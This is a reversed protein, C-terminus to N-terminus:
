YVLTWCAHRHMDTFWPGVHTDTVHRAVDVQGYDLASRSRASDRHAECPPTSSVVYPMTSCLEVCSPAGSDSSAHSRTAAALPRPLSTAVWSMTSRHLNVTDFGTRFAGTTEASLGVGDYVAKLM